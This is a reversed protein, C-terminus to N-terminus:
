TELESFNRWIGTTSANRWSKQTQLNRRYALKADTLDDADYWAGPENNAFLYPPLFSQLRGLMSRRLRRLRKPLRSMIGFM